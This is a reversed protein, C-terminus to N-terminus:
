TQYHVVAHITHGSVRYAAALVRQSEGAAYRQRIARVAAWTLKAQPHEEGRAVPPM